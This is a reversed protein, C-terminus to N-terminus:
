DPKTATGMRISGRFIGHRRRKVTISTTIVDRGPIRKVMGDRVPGVFRYHREKRLM